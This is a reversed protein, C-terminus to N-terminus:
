EDVSAEFTIGESMRYRNRGDDKARYLATDAQKLLDERNVGRQACASAGGISCTLKVSLGNNKMDSAAIASCLREAVVAAENSKIDPLLIVFEEGGYRAVVDSERHFSSKLIKSVRQLCQDGFVHGYNDNISKFHDLDLLM